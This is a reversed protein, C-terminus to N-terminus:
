RRNLSSVFSQVNRMELNEFRRVLFTENKICFVNSVFM